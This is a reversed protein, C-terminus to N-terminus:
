AGVSGAGQEFGQDIERRPRVGGSQSSAPTCRHFFHHSNTQVNEQNTLSKARRWPCQLLLDSPWGGEAAGMQTLAVLIALIPRQKM